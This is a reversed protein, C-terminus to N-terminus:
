RLHWSWASWIATFDATWASDFSLPSTKMMFVLPRRIPIILPAVGPHALPLVTHGPRALVGPLAYAAGKGARCVPPSRASVYPGASLALASPLSVGTIPHRPCSASYIVSCVWGGPLPCASASLLAAGLGEGGALAPRSSAGRGTLAAGGEAAPGPCATPTARRRHRGGCGGGRWRGGM